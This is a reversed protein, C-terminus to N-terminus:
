LMCMFFINYWFCCALSKIRLDTNTRLFYSTFLCSPIFMCDYTQLREHLSFFFSRSRSHRHHGQENVDSWCKRCINLPTPNKEYSTLLCLCSVMRTTLTNSCKTSFKWCNEVRMINWIVFYWVNPSKRSKKEVRNFAHM